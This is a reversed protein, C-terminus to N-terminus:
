LKLREVNITTRGGKRPHIYLHQTKGPRGPTEYQLCFLCKPLDTIPAIDMTFAVCGGICVGSACISCVYVCVKLVGYVCMCVCVVVVKGIQM